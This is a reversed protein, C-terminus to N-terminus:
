VELLSAVGQADPYVHKLGPVVAFARDASVITAYKTDLAVAALVADFAGLEKHAHWLALGQELHEAETLRLPALLTAYEIAREAAAPRGRRRAYIHAFEQLAEPTTVARLTGEAILSIIQTCPDKLVHDAGSKYMLVNTDILLM